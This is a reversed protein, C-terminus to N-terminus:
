KFGKFIDEFFSIIDNHEECSKVVMSGFDPYKRRLYKELECQAMFRNPKRKVIIAGDKLITNVSSYAIYKIRYNM